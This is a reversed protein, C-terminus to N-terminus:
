QSMQQHYRRCVKGIKTGSLDIGERKATNCINIMIPAAASPNALMRNMVPDKDISSPNVRCVPICGSSSDTPNTYYTIKPANPNMPDFSEQKPVCTPYECFRKEATNLLLQNGLTNNQLQFGDFQVTNPWSQNEPWNGRSQHKQYYYECFGDWKDACRDAMYLQCNQSRPGYLVGNPAHNFDKDMSDVLCYTLPNSASEADSSLNGFQAYNMYPM